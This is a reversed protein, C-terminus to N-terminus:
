LNRELKTRLSRLPETIKIAGKGGSISKRLADQSAMIHLLTERFNQQELHLDEFIKMSEQLSEM